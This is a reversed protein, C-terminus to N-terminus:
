DHYATQDLVISALKFRAKSRLHCPVEGTLQINVRQSVPSSWKVDPLNQASHYAAIMVIAQWNATLEKTSMLWESAMPFWLSKFVRSDM